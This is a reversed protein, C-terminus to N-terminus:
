NQFPVNPEPAAGVVADWPRVSGDIFNSVPTGNSTTCRENLEYERLLGASDFAAAISSNDCADGWANTYATTTWTVRTLPDTASGANENLTGNRVPYQGLNAISLAKDAPSVGDIENVLGSIRSGGNQLGTVITDPSLRAVTRPLIVGTMDSRRMWSGGQQTFQAIGQQHVYAPKKDDYTTRFYSSYSYPRAKGASTAKGLIVYEDGMGPKPFRTLNGFDYRNWTKYYANQGSVGSVTPALLQQVRAADDAAQAAPALALTAAAIATAVSAIAVRTFTINM